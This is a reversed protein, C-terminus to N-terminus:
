KGQAENITLEDIRKFAGDDTVSFLRGPAKILGLSRWAFEQEWNDPTVTLSGHNTYNKGADDSTSLTVAGGFIVPDGLDATLYVEFCPLTERARIPIQGTARRRFALPEENGNLYHEDYGRSPDAIWLIGRTDDGIVINSGMPSAYVDAGLWNIGTSVKWRGGETGSYWTSWQNSYTDYVLTENDGLRLFYFDHGDLTATWARVHPNAIRGGAILLVELQSSQVGQAVGEVVVEVGSQSTEMSITPFNYIATVQSQSTDIDGNEEAVVMTQAQPAQIAPTTNAVVATTEAQPSRIQPTQAM